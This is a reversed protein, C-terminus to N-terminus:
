WLISVSGPVKDLLLELTSSFLMMFYPLKGFILFRVFLIFFQKLFSFILIAVYLIFVIEVRYLLKFSRVGLNSLDFM